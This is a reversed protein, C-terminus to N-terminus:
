TKSRYLNLLSNTKSRYLKELDPSANIVLGLHLMFVIETFCTFVMRTLCQSYFSHIKGGLMTISPVKFRRILLKEQEAATTFVALFNKVFVKMVQKLRAMGRLIEKRITYPRRLQSFGFMKAAKVARSVKANCILAAM